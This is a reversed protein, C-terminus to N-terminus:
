KFIKEYSFKNYNLRNFPSPLPVGSWVERRSFGMSLPAQHSCDMPDRLTLCSQAAESESKVTVCQLLFHCGGGTNKGPSDWPSPLRAPQRRHPRAPDSLVSAVQCCCCCCNILFIGCPVERAAWHYSQVRGSCLAHTRDSTLSSLDQM